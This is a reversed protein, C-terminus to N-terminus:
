DDCLRDETTGAHTRKGGQDAKRGVEDSVPSALGVSAGTGRLRDPHPDPAPSLASDPADPPPQMLWLMLVESDMRQRYRRSGWNRLYGLPRGRFM